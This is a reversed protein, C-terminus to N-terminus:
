EAAEKIDTQASLAMKWGDSEKVAMRVVYARKGNSARPGHISTMVVVDDGFDFMKMSEVPPSPSGDGYAEYQKTLLDLRGAKNFWMTPSITLMNDSIHRPWDDKLAHWEDMKTALWTQMAAEQAADAPKFPFTKCPNECDKDAQRPPSPHNSYGNVPIPIDLLIFARWGMPRKVWLRVFRDNHHVGVIREVEGFDHTQVETDGENDISLESLHELAEDKTRTKGDVNTWSFNDDLLSAVLAKDSKALADSLARDAQLPGSDEGRASVCTTIGFATLCAIVVISNLVVREFYSV